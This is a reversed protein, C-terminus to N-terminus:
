RRGDYVLRYFYTSTLRPQNFSGNPAAIPSGTQARPTQRVMPIAQKALASEVLRNKIKPSMLVKDSTESTVEGTKLSVTDLSFVCGEIIEGLASFVASPFQTLNEASYLRELCRILPQVKQISIAEM